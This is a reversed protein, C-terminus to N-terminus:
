GARKTVHPISECFCPREHDGHSRCHPDPLVVLWEGPRLTGLCSCATSSM